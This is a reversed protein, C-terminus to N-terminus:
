LCIGYVAFRARDKIKLFLTLPFPPNTIVQCFIFIFGNTMPQAIKRSHWGAGRDCAASVLWVRVMRANHM